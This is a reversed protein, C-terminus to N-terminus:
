ILNLILSLNRQHFIQLKKNDESLNTGSIDLPIEIYRHINLTVQLILEPNIADKNPSLILSDQINM